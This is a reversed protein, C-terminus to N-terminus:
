GVDIMPKMTEFIAQVSRSNYPLLVIRNSYAADQKRVQTGYSSQPYATTTDTFHGEGKGEQMSISM